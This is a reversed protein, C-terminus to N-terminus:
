AAVRARSALNDPCSTDETRSTGCSTTRWDDSGVTTVVGGRAGALQAAPRCHGSSADAGAGGEASPSNPLLIVQHTYIRPRDAPEADAEYRGM